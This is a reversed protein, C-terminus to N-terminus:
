KQVKKKVTVRFLACCQVSDCYTMYVTCACQARLRTNDRRGPASDRAGPVKDRAGPARDDSMTRAIEAGM